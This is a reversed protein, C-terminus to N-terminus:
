SKGLVLDVVWCGRVHEGAQRCHNLIDANDCGADELADALIPLRDFADEVYIAEAIRRVTADNRHLWDVALPIPRFPSSVIDRILHAQRRHAIGAHEFFSVSGLPPWNQFETCALIRFAYVLTSKIERAEIRKVVENERLVELPGVADESAGCDIVVQGAPVRVVQPNSLQGDRQRLPGTLALHELIALAACTEDNDTSAWIERFCALAFLRLRRQSAKGHLFKLMAEPDECALWEDETMAIAETEM